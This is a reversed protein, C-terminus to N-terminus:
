HSPHRRHQHEQQVRPADYGRLTNYQQIESASLAARMAIHARLHVARLTGDLGAIRLTRANVDAESIRGSRFGVELGQEERLIQDGLRQAERAMGDFLREAARTQELTLALQGAKAADLVHRPGPYGNLEAARARGMGRGQRLDSVEQDSLGRIETHIQDRYPPVNDAVVPGAVSLVFLGSIMIRV